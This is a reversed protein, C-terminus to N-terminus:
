SWLDPLRLEFEGLLEPCALADGRALIRAGERTYVKATEGGPDIAWVARAGAAIFEGAKKDAAKWSDSPSNVEIALDPAGELFEAPPRGPLRAATVFAVDPGRVTDPNRRLIFGADGALVVGLRHAEVFAALARTVRAVVHAHRAGAPSMPVVRGDILEWLGSLGLSLASEATLNSHEPPAADM